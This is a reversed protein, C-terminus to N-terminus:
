THDDPGLFAQFPVCRPMINQMMLIALDAVRISFKSPVIGSVDNSIQSAQRRVPPDFASQHVFVPTGVAHNSLSTAYVRYQCLKACFQANHVCKLSSKAFNQQPRQSKCAPVTLLFTREGFQGHSVVNKFYQQQSIRSVQQWECQSPAKKRPVKPGMGKRVVSCKSNAAHCTSEM